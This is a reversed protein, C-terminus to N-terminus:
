VPSFIFRELPCTASDIKYIFYVDTHSYATFLLKSNNESLYEIETIKDEDDFIYPHNHHYKIIKKIVQQNHIKHDNYEKLVDANYHIQQFPIKTCKEKQVCGSVISMIFLPVLKYMFIDKM